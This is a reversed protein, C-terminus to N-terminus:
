FSLKEGENLEEMFGWVAQRSQPDMGVTPEDLFIIEPDHVLAMALNVRRKMGSSYKGVRRNADNVLGMKELLLKTSTKLKQKPMAHLNGFLEINESGTLYAYVATEQTCVGILEKVKKPEKQLSYGGVSVFGKTPALICCLVNITTTKGAGNPGLLGFFEGRKVELNLGNVAIVDQFKVTLDRIVIAEAVSNKEREM